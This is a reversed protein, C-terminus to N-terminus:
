VRQRMRHITIVPDPMSIFPINGNCNQRHDHKGKAKRRIAKECAKDDIIKIRSPKVTQILKESHKSKIQKQTSPNFRYIDYIIPASLKQVEFTTLESHDIHRFDNWLESTLYNDPFLRKYSDYFLKRKGGKPTDFRHNIYHHVPNHSENCFPLFYDQWGKKIRFNADDSYLKFAINHRQCYLIALVMNNFESYFGASHGLHFVLQRM